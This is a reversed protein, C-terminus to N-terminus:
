GQAISAAARAVLVQPQEQAAREVEALTLVRAGEAGAPRPALMTLSAALTAPAALALFRAPPM